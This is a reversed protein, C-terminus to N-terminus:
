GSALAGSSEEGTGRAQGLASELTGHIQLVMTELKKGSGM